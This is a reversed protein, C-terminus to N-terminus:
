REYGQPHALQWKWASEIISTLDPFQPEWGLVRKAKRSDAVLHSADGPRPPEMRVDIQRDTIKRATEIVELVTYGKGNGLNVSESQGGRRLHDLALIHAQGLDAIHIYDRVATGDPTPYQDGYVSVFPRQGAAAMLINPILHTEPNHHEGCKQTAGSANFYRLPVSKLGYAADYNELVREIFYKTWAYPNAPLQPHEEDIPIRQPQGYTACTSSFVFRRCGAELLAGLLRIGQAVNNEFYMKPQEVSEGVAIFAAFHVCAELTHERAVRAILEADGIDGQYFPLAPDLADRHGYSLNDVVVVDEGRERLLEVTASGIYGAGGTVLVAM